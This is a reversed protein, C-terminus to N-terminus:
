AIRGNLFIEPVEGVLVAQSVLIANAFSITKKSLPVTLSVECKIGVYISHLTQNIGVSEFEGDFTASVSSVSMAKFPVNTGYGALISVGSFSGLPIEVGKTLRNKLIKQVADTVRKNLENVKLANAYMYSVNGNVDKEIKVLDSYMVSETLSELVALNVSETVSQKIKDECVNFVQPCILFKYYSFCGALVIIITLIIPFRKRKKRRKKKYYVNESCCEIM